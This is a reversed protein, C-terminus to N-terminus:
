CRTLARRPHNSETRAPRLLRLAPRDRPSRYVVSWLSPRPLRPDEDRSLLEAHWGLIELAHAAERAGVEDTFRALPAHPAHGEEFVYYVLRGGMGPM